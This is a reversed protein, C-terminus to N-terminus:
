TRSLGTVGGARNLVALLETATKQWSFIRARASALQGLAQRAPGDAWLTQIRAGIDAPSSADFYRVADGALETMPGVDSSLVAIGSAMAEVLTNPFSECTTSFLFLGAAAYLPPLDAYPIQGTFVLRDGVNLKRATARVKSAYDAEVEPGALVLKLGAPLAPLARAFGEVLEVIKQYRYFHSVALFYPTEIQLRKLLPGAREAASPAFDPSYGLYVREAKIPSIGLQPFIIQKQADSIFVVRDVAKASWIGTHRLVQMRLAGLGSDYLKRVSATFPAVNRFMLVQPVPCALVAMSAPSLVVDAKGAIARLPFAVQEFALRGVSSGRPNWNIVRVRKNSLGFASVSDSRAFVTYENSGGDVELLAPLLRKLATVGGGLRASLANVFVNM